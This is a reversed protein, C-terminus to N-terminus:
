AGLGGRTSGATGGARSNRAQFKNRRNRGWEGAGDGEGMKHGGEEGNLVVTAVVSATYCLM